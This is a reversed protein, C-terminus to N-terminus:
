LLSVDHPYHLLLELHVCQGDAVPGVVHGHDLRRVNTDSDGALLAHLDSKVTWTFM